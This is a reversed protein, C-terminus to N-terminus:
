VRLVRPRAEDRGYYLIRRLSLRLEEVAAASVALRVDVAPDSLGLHAMSDRRVVVHMEGDDITLEEICGYATAQNEAMVCYTDMGLAADQEDPPGLSAQFILQRGTGDEREAVGAVL